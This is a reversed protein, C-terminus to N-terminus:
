IWSIGLSLLLAHVSYLNCAPYTLINLKILLQSEEEKHKQIRFNIQPLYSLATIQLQDM